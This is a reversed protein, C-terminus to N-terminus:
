WTASHSASCTARTSVNEMWRPGGIAAAVALGYYFTLGLTARPSHSSEGIQNETSSDGILENAKRSGEMMVHSQRKRSCSVSNLLPRAFRARAAMKATPLPWRITTAERRHEQRTISHENVPPYFRPLGRAKPIRWLFLVPRRSPLATHMRSICRETAGRSLYSLVIGAPPAQNMAVLKKLLCRMRSTIFLPFGAVHALGVQSYKLAVCVRRGVRGRLKVGRRMAPDLPIYWGV